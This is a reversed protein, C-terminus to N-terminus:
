AFDSVVLDVHVLDAHTQDVELITLPSTPISPSQRISAAYSTACSHPIEAMGVKVTKLFPIGTSEMFPAM